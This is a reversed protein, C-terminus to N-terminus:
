GRLNEWYWEIAEELGKQLSFEPNYNLLEKAKTIDAHSHPIDGLRNAGYIVDVNKIEPNYKSLLEKLYGMLDNLTNRDGYAANYVMNVAEKGAVISLLNIQIINDIYTFDRSNSGDGHITPSELKM